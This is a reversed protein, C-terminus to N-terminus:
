SDVTKLDLYEAFCKLATRLGNVHEINLTPAVIRLNDIEYARTEVILFETRETQKNLFDVISRLENGSDELFFIIRLQGQRLNEIVSDFYDDGTDSISLRGFEKKLSCNRKDATESAM